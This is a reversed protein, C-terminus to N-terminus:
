ETMSSHVIPVFGAAFVHVISRPALVKVVADTEISNAAGYKDFV